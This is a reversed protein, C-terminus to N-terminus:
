RGNGGPRSRELWTASVLCSLPLGIRHQILAAAGVMPPLPMGDLPKSFSGFNLWVNAYNHRTLYNMLPYEACSNGIDDIETTFDRYPGEPESSECKWSLGIGRKGTVEECGFRFFTEFLIRM